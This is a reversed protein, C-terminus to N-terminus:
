TNSSFCHQRSFVGLSISLRRFFSSSYSSSVASITYRDNKRVPEDGACGAVALTSANIAMSTYGM